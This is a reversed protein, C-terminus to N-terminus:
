SAQSFEEWAVARSRSGSTVFEEIVSTLMALTLRYRGSIPTATDGVLFQMDDGEQSLPDRAMLYPPLGDASGFQACGYDRAIGVVLNSGNNAALQFMFPPSTFRGQDVLQLVAAASDLIMGDQPTGANQLDEFTVKM